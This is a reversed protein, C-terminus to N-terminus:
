ADLALLDEVTERRRVLSVRGENVLVVAPRPIFNYNSALPLQYAGANPIAILDGRQVRPLRAQHVLIDGQECYRGAIACELVPSETMRNACFAAYNAGYLAPRINDGMGGDVSVYTRVGEIEKVSGVRYLAVGARAVLCRGPEVLLEFSAVEQDSVARELRTGVRAALAGIDLDTQTEDYAVGWGGGLNLAFLEFGYRRRWDSALELVADLADSYVQVDFIQSGLHVHLGVPTLNDYKRIVLLAREAAGDHIGLGFKTDAAGTALYRHTHVDINPAVRILLQPRARCRRATESILPIEDLNDVVLHWIGREFATQIEEATKCNGHFYIKSPDLGAREAIVMEGISTVDLGFGQDRWLRALFSSLYAKASYLM